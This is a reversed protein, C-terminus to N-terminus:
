RGRSALGAAESLTLTPRHDGALWASLDSRLYVTGRPRLTDDPLLMPPGVAGGSELRRGIVAGDKAALQHPEVAYPIENPDVVKKFKHM